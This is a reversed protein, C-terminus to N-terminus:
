GITPHFVQPDCCNICNWAYRVATPTKGALPTLDAEVMSGDSSLKIDLSVWGGDLSANTPQGTAVVCQQSGWFDLIMVKLRSDNWGDHMVCLKM